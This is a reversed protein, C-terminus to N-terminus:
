DRGSLQSCIGQISNERVLLTYLEQFKECM